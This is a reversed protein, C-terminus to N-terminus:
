WLNLGNNSGTSKKKKKIPVKPGSRIPSVAGDSYPMAFPLKNRKTTARDAKPKGAGKGGRRPPVLGSPTPVNRKIRACTVHVHVHVHVHLKPWKSQLNLCKTRTCKAWITVKKEKVPGRLPGTDCGQPTIFWNVSFTSM